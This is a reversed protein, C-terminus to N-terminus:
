TIYATWHLACPTPLVFKIPFSIASSCVRCGPWCGDVSSCNRSFRGVGRVIGGSGSRNMPNLTMFTFAASATKWIRIIRVTHSLPVALARQLSALNVLPHPGSKRGNKRLSLIAPSSNSSNNKAAITNRTLDRPAASTSYANSNTMYSGKMVVDNSPSLPEQPEAPTAMGLLTKYDADAFLWKRDVIFQFGFKTAFRQMAQRSTVRCEDNEALVQGKRHCFGVHDVFTM